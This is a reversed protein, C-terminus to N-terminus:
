MFDNAYLPRMLNYQLYGHRRLLFEINTSGVHLLAVGLAQEAAILLGRM